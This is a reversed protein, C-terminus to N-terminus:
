KANLGWIRIFDDRGISVIRTGDVSFSLRVVSQDERIKWRKEVDPYKGSNCVQIEGDGTGFEVQHGCQDLGICDAGEPADNLM